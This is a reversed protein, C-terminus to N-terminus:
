DRNRLVPFEPNDAIVMQKYIGEVRENSDIDLIARVRAIFDEKTETYVTVVDCTGGWGGVSM